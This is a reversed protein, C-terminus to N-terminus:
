EHHCGCGHNCCNSSEQAHAEALLQTMQIGMQQADTLNEPNMETPNEGFPPDSVVQVNVGGEIDEFTVTVKAM